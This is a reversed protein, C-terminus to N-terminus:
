IKWLLSCEFHVKELSSVLACWDKWLLCCSLKRFELRRVCLDIRSSVWFIALLSPCELYRPLFCSLLFLTGPGAFEATFVQGLRFLSSKCDRHQILNGVGQARILVHQSSSCLIGWKRQNIFRLVKIASDIWSKKKKQLYNIGFCERCEQITAVDQINLM